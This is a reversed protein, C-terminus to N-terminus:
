GQVSLDNVPANKKEKGPTEHVTQLLQAQKDRPLASVKETKVMGWGLGPNLSTDNKNM